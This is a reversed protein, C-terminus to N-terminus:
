IFNMIGELEFSCLLSLFFCSGPKWIEIDRASFGAVQGYILEAVELQFKACFTRNTKNSFQIGDCIQEQQFISSSM